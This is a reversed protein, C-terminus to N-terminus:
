GRDEEWKRQCAGCKYWHRRGERSFPTLRQWRGCHPCQVLWQQTNPLQDATNPGEWHPLFVFYLVLAVALTALGFWLLPDMGLTYRLRRQGM